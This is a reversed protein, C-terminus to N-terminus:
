IKQQIDDIEVVLMRTLWPFQAKKADFDAGSEVFHGRGAVHFGAGPGVTGEVEKSGFTLLVHNDTPFDAEISHMGAAPILLQQDKLTIYSMWTNVVHAPNANITIITVPGEHQLVELFKANM